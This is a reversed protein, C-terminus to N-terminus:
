AKGEPVRPTPVQQTICHIGGGGLLIERAPVGVIRRDPFWSEFAALAADDHRQDLLPVVVRTTAIYSNVYSGALREGARRTVAAASPVLGAAEEERRHLPGPQHLLRVEIPRGRADTAEELRRRADLSIPYQPDDRDDTWTLAVVGPRIFCALNDIHGRTEDDVVGRGLWVVREAGLYRCLAEEATARTWGRNRHPDLVCQETVLVTGEGDTHVAGGELVFPARYRDAGELELIRAAAADDRDWPAYLGATAGGWANFVWDVGRRGGREDLVFTPGIDRMWADDTALEVVDVGAPLARRAGDVQGPSATVVVPESAAIAEAVAVFAERVPGAGERWTDPREPWAMWTRDHPAWEAPMSFGDDRPTSRVTTTVSGKYDM